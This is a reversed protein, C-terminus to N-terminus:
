PVGVLAELRRLVLAFSGLSLTQHDGSEENDRTSVVDREATMETVVVLGITCLFSHIVHYFSHLLLSPVALPIQAGVVVETM